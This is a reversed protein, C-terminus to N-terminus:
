GYQNYPKGDEDANVLGLMMGNQQIIAVSASTAKPPKFSAMASTDFPPYTAIGRDTNIMVTGTSDREMPRDSSCGWRCLSQIAGAGTGDETWLFVEQDTAVLVGEPVGLMQKCVGARSYVDNALRFLHWHGQVSRYYQTTNYEHNFFAVHLRMDFLALGIVPFQPLPYTNILFDDLTDQLTQGTYYVENGYSTALFREATGNAPSVYIDAVWGTPPSPMIAIGATTGDEITVSISPHAPTKIQLDGYPRLVTTIQYQGPPLSGVILAVSPKLPYPVRLPHWIVGNRIWGADREGAYLFHDNLAAFSLRTDTLGTRASRMSYEDWCYLIGGALHFSYKEHPM